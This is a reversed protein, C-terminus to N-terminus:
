VMVRSAVELAVAQAKLCSFVSPPGNLGNNAQTPFLAGVRKLTM